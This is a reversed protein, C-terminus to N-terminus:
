CRPHQMGASPGARYERQAQLRGVGPVFRGVRSAYDTYAMGHARCLYPEEVLRVQAEIGVAAVIVGAVAVLNPVILAMGVFTLIVAVFIPNRVLRFPGTTVLTTRESEDVGIRWSAGLGLQAGFALLIGLVALLIGLGRVMPEDAVAVPPLGALEAVPAGVGVL